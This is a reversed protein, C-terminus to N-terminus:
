VADGAGVDASSDTGTRRALVRRAFAASEAFIMPADNDLVAVHYSDPLVHETVDPSAVQQIVAQSSAAPVVHDVASRFVVVPCTVRGLDQHTLKWLDRLSDLARLPLRDYGEEAVGAKKIDSKIGPVSGVLRKLVPTALLRKDPDLVSPNVLMLGAVDDPRQEALRLALGGGMSLGAVFVPGDHSLLEDLARSIAAYWDTWQTTNLQQWTTGHGPLCPVSVRFGEAALQKAWPTMSAPTSTFGHVLLVSASPADPADAAGEAHFPEAHLPDPV